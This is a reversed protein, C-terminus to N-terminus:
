VRIGRATLAARLADPTTFRVADMGVSLAGAVNDDRDDTFFAEAPAVNLKHLARRYIEPDPKAVGERYSYITEDFLRMFPFKQEVWRIHMDNTNSLLAIPVRGKLARVIAVTEPIESFIDSWFERFQDFGGRFGLGVRALEFFEPTTLKGREYDYVHPTESFWEIIREEGGDCLATSRKCAAVWDFDLLVKGLDFFVARIM